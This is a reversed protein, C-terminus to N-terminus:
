NAPAWRLWNRLAERSRAAIPARGHLKGDRIDTPQKAANIHPQVYRRGAAFYHTVQSHRTRGAEIIPSGGHLLHAHWVIAQGKRMIGLEPVGGDSRHSGPYFRLPGNGIEMDEFAVWVGAMLGSPVTDFFGSDRHLDQETGRRFNLTQFPFVECGLLDAVLAVIEDNCALARVSALRRWADQVRGKGRYLPTVDAVITEADLDAVDFILYGHERFFEVPTPDYRQAASAM